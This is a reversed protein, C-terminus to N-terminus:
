ILWSLLYIIHKEQIFKGLLFFILKFHSAMKTKKDTQRKIRRDERRRDKKLATEVEQVLERDLRMGRNDTRPLPQGTQQLYEMFGNVDENVYDKKKHNPKRVASSSALTRTLDGRQDHQSSDGSHGRYGSRGAKFQSWPTAQAPKHKHINNARAWRTM